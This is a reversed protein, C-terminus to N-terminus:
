TMMCYNMNKFLLSNMCPNQPLLRNYLSEQGSSKVTATKPEVNVRWYLNGEENLLLATYDTIYASYVGDGLQIDPDTSVSPCIHLKDIRWPIYFCANLFIRIDNASFAYPAKICRSGEHTSWVHTTVGGGGLGDDHLPLAVSWDDVSSNTIPSLAGGYLTATVDLGGVGVGREWVGAYVGLGVAGNSLDVQFSFHHSEHWQSGFFSQFVRLTDPIM